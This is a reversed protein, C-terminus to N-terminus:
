QPSVNEGEGWDRISEDARRIEDLVVATVHSDILAEGRYVARIARVLVNGAVDESLCGHAGAQIAWLMGEDGSSMTLAIVRASSSQAAIARIAQVGDLTPMEIDLLIVDPQLQRTLAVAETGNEAEGVVEFGRELECIRRLGQRLDPRDDAILIRISPM